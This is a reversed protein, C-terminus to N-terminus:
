RWTSTNQRWTISFYFPWTETYSATYRQWRVRLPVTQYRLFGQPRLERAFYISRTYGNTPSTLALKQQSYRGPSLRKNAFNTGVKAWPHRRTLAASGRRGYDRNELGSGSSKRDLLEERPQPGLELDV